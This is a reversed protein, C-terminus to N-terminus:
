PRVVTTFRVATVPEHEVVVAVEGPVSTQRGPELRAEYTVLLEDGPPPDFEWLIWEGLSAEAAPSPLVGNLDWAELYKRSIGIQVPEDFGGDRHVEVRFVSALAPRTISPYEVDLDFGGGSATRHREDPGLTNWVDLGDLVALAMILALLGGVIRHLLRRRGVVHTWEAEGVHALHGVHAHEGQAM